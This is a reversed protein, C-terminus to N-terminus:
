DTAFPSPASYSAAARPRPELSTYSYDLDILAGGRVDPSHVAPRSTWILPVAPLRDLLVQNVEAFARERTAREPQEAARRIAANTTPDDFFSFNATVPAISAGSFTGHFFIAPDAGISM